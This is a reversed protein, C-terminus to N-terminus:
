PATEVRRLPEIPVMVPMNARNGTLPHQCVGPLEFGGDEANLSLGRITRVRNPPKRTEPPLAGDPAKHQGGTPPCPYAEPMTPVGKGRARTTTM